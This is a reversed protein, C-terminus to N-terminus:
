KTGEGAPDGQMRIQRPVPHVIIQLAVAQHPELTLVPTLVEVNYLDSLETDIVVNYTGPMVAPFTFRGTQSSTAVYEHLESVLRLRMGRTTMEDTVRDGSGYLVGPQPEPDALVVQGEVAAAPHVTLELELVERDPVSVRLPLEPDTIMGDLGGVALLTHEGAKLGHVRFSGNQDTVVAARGVMLEIGAVPQGTPDLLVGHLDGLGEIQAIPVDFPVTYSVNFTASNFGSDQLTVRGGLGLQHGSLLRTSTQASASLSRRVHEGTFAFTGQIGAAGRVSPALWGHWRALGTVWHYDATHRYRVGFRLDGNLSAVDEIVAVAEAQLREIEQGLLDYEVEGRAVLQSSPLGVRVTADALVVSGLLTSTSAHKSRWAISGSLGVAELAARTSVGFQQSRIWDGTGSATELATSYTLALGVSETNVSVGFAVADVNRVPGADPDIVDISRYEAGISVPVDGLAGVDINGFLGWSRRGFAEGRFGATSGSLQGGVSIGMTGLQASAAGAVGGATDVAGEVTAYGGVPAGQASLAERLSAEVDEITREEAEEDGPLEESAEDLEGVVAEVAGSDAGRGGAPENTPEGDEDATPTLFTSGQVTGSASLVGRNLGPSYTFDMSGRLGDSEGTVQAGIGSLASFDSEALLYAGMSVGTEPLRADLTVGYGDASFGLDSYERQATGLSVDLTDSTYAAAATIRDLGRASLSARLRQNGEPDLLGGGAIRVGLAELGAQSLNPGPSYDVRVSFRLDRTTERVRYSSGLVRYDLDALALEENSGERYAKLTLRQQSSSQLPSFATVRIRTSAGPTLTLASPEVTGDAVPASDLEFRLNETTNGHNEVILEFSRQASTDGREESVTTLTVEPRDPVNVTASLRVREGEGHALDLNVEYEGPKTGAPPMLSLFLAKTEGPELSLPLPALGLVLEPPLTVEPAVDITADTENKLLATLNAAEGDRLELVQNSFSAVLGEAMGVQLTALTLLLWTAM